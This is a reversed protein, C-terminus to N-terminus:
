LAWKPLTVTQILESYAPWVGSASCDRYRAMAEAVRGAAAVCADDDLVYVGVAFPPATEVAIFAFLPPEVRLVQRAGATYHALQVAYGYQAIARGFGLPSADRASKLDVIGHDPRLWDIRAKCPTGTAEDRWQLSVEPAGEALLYSAAPHARVADAVCRATDHEDAALALRGAARLEFEAAAKKGAKTRRDFKPSVLVDTAFREPELVALHVATGLRQADTPEDASESAARYHAPSRLLRKVDSSGLAPLARYLADPMGYAVGPAFTPSISAADM